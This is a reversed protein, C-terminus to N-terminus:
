SHRARLEGILVQVVHRDREDVLLKTDHEKVAPIEVGIYLRTHLKPQLLKKLQFLTLRSRQYPRIGIGRRTNRFLVVQARFGPVRLDKMAVCDLPHIAYRPAPKFTAYGNEALTLRLVDFDRKRGPGNLDAGYIM